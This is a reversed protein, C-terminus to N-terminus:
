RWGPAAIAPDEGTWSGVPCGHRRCVWRHKRWVLRARRGFVPLDVLTVESRDKVEAATGCGRCTRRPLRSEIYIQLLGAPRDDVGWCPSRPFGVLLECMRTPNIVM